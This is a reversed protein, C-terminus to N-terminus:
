RGLTKQEDIPWSISRTLQHIQFADNAPHGIIAVRELRALFILQIDVIRAATHEVRAVHRQVIKSRHRVVEFQGIRRRHAIVSDMHMLGAALLGVFCRELNVRELQVRNPQDDLQVLGDIESAVRDLPRKRQLVVVARRQGALGHRVRDGTPLVRSLRIRLTRDFEFERSPLKALGVVHRDGGREGFLVYGRCRDCLQGCAPKRNVDIRQTRNVDRALCEIRRDLDAIWGAFRDRRIQFQFNQFARSDVSSAAFSQDFRELRFRIRLAIRLTSQPDVLAATVDNTRGAGILKAVRQATRMDHCNRSVVIGDPQPQQGLLMLVVDAILGVDFQM